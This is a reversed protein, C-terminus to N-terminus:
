KSSDTVPVALVEHAKSTLLAASEKEDFQFDNDLLNQVTYAAKAVGGAGHHQTNAFIHYLEHALVRAIARGFTEERDQARLGLLGTQVFGRIGDCDIDAFPLIAGESIHTWGLAGPHPTRPVIRAVDCRGKFTVVALEVSVESGHATNLSRWDFHMGMPAMISSLEQHIADLVGAPPEQQFQTYLAIPALTAGQQGGFVPLAALLLGFSLLKM